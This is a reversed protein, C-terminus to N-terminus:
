IKQAHGLRRLLGGRIVSFSLRTLLELVRTVRTSPFPFNRFRGDDANVVTLHAAASPRVPSMLAAHTAIHQHQDPMCAEEQPPFSLSCKHHAPRCQEIHHRPFVCLFLQNIMRGHMLLKGLLPYAREFILRPIPQKLRRFRYNFGRNIGKLIKGRM